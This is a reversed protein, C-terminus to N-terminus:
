HAAAADVRLVLLRLTAGRTCPSLSQQVIRTGKIPEAHPCPMPAQGLVITQGLRADLRTSLKRIGSDHSAHDEYNVQLDVTDGQAPSAELGFVKGDGGSLVALHDYGLTNSVAQDLRFQMPGLAQRLPALAPELSKLQADDEGGGASGDIVWFRAQLLSDDRDSPAKELTALAAGISAQASGPAYVLLKDPAPATIRATRIDLVGGLAAALRPAQSPAVPYIKLTMESAQAPVSGPHAQCGALLALVLAATWRYLTM